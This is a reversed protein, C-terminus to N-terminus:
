DYLDCNSGRKFELHTGQHCKSCRSSPNVHCGLQKLRRQPDSLRPRHRRHIEIFGGFNQRDGNIEQWAATKRHRAVFADMWHVVRYALGVPVQAEKLVLAVKPHARRTHLQGVARHAQDLSVERPAQRTERQQELRHDQHQRLLHRKSRHRADHALRRVPHHRHALAIDLDGQAQSVEALHLRQGNVLCRTSAAVVVDRQCGVGELAPHQKDGFPTVCVMLASAVSRASWPQGGPCISATLM